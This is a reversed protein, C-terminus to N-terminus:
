PLSPWPCPSSPPDRQRRPATGMEHGYLPFSAEMRLTDRAGLGAPRAGLDVLRNWLWM